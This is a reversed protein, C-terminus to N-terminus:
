GSSFPQKMVTRMIEVHCWNTAGLGVEVWPVPANGFQVWKRGSLSHVSRPSSQLM